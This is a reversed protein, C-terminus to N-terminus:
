EEEAVSEQIEGERLEGGGLESSGEEALSEGDDEDTGDGAVVGFEGGGGRAGEEDEWGEGWVSAGFTVGRGLKGLLKPGAGLALVDESPM